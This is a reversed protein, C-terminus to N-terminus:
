RVFDRPIHCSDGSRCTGLMNKRFAPDLYKSRLVYTIDRLSYQVDFERSAADDIRRAQELLKKTAVNYNKIYDNM